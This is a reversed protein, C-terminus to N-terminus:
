NIPLSAPELMPPDAFLNNYYFSDHSTKLFNNGQIQFIEFCRKESIIGGSYKSNFNEYKKLLTDKEINNPNIKNEFYEKNYFVVLNNKYETCYFLSDTSYDYVSAIQIFDKNNYKQYRVQLMRDKGGKCYTSDLVFDISRMLEKQFPDSQNSSIKKNKNCSILFLTVIIILLFRKM